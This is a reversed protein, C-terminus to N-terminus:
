KKGRCARCYVYFLPVPINPDPHPVAVGDYEQGPIRPYGYSYSPGQYPNPPFLPALTPLRFQSLPALTAFDFPAAPAAPSPLFPAPAPAVFPSPAPAPAPASAIFPSPAAAPAAGASVGSTGPAVPVGFAAAIAPHLTFLSPFLTPQVTTPPALAASYESGAAAASAGPQVAVNENTQSGDFPVLEEEGTEGNSQYYYDIDEPVLSKTVTAAAAPAQIIRKIPENKPVEETKRGQLIQRLLLSRHSELSISIRNLGTISRPTPQGCVCLAAVYLVAIKLALTFYM